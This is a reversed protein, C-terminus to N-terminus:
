QEALILMELKKFEALTLFGQLQTYSPISMKNLIGKVLHSCDNQSELIYAIEKAAIVRPDEDNACTEITPVPDLNTVQALATGSAIYPEQTTACSACPQSSFNEIYIPINPEEVFLTKDDVQLLGNSSNHQEGSNQYFNEGSLHADQAVQHLGQNTFTEAPVPNACSPQDSGTGPPTDQALNDWFSKFDDLGGERCFGKSCQWTPIGDLNTAPIFAGRLVEIHFFHRPTIERKGNVRAGFKRDVYNQPLVNKLHGVFKNYSWTQFGHAKCYASYYDHITSNELTANKDDNPRLCMDVFARVSDSHIAQERKLNAIAENATVSNMILHDRKQKGMGLAWSIIDGKVLQLKRGLDPDIEGQRQKTPLPICRRDWGDGSNEISLYSVSALTFRCNWQREYGSSSFLARGSMTGNDVLEYFARLNGQFGGMDPFNILRAGTMYQHRGEATTIDSFSTISRVGSEGVMSGWLRLLTGKGSGSSGIVHPFYGYPATPDLLMATVARILDIFEEGFANVIFKKFVEPCEANPVYNSAIAHIVFNDRNHPLEEGTRLDVTCNLFASLHNNYLTQKKALASKCYKFAASKNRENAFKFEKFEENGVKKVQYIDRLAHAILYNVYSDEIHKWYGNGTYQYFADNIVTWDGKGNQFLSKFITEDPTTTMRNLDDEQGTSLEHEPAIKNDDNQHNQPQSRAPFTVGTEECLEKLIGVFEKGTPKINGGQLFSRYGFVDGGINCAPCRWLLANGKREAYFATGSSSHHWPCNGRVKDNGDEQFNHEEWNFATSLNLRSNVEEIVVKLDKDISHSEQLDITSEIEKKIVQSQNKSSGIDILEHQNITSTLQPKKARNLPYIGIDELREIVPPYECWRVWYYLGNVGQTPPLITTAGGNCLVEGLARSSDTILSFGGNSTFNEPKHQLAVIHRYGGSQTRYMPCNKTIPHNEEWNAIQQDCDEQSAFNKQDFDIFTIWHKGNFKAITSIGRPNRFWNNRDKPTPMDEQYKKWSILYTKGNDGLFRPQKASKGKEVPEKPCVPLQPLGLNDLWKSTEEFTKPPDALESIIEAGLPLAITGTATSLIQNNAHFM